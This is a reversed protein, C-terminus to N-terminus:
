LSYTVGAITFRADFGWCLETGVPPLLWQHWGIHSGAQISGTGWLPGSWEAPADLNYVVLTCSPPM